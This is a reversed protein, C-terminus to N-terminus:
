KYINKTNRREEQESYLEIESVLKQENADVIKIKKSDEAYYIYEGDTKVNDKEETEKIESSNIKESKIEDQLMSNYSDLGTNELSQKAILSKLQEFDKVTKNEKSLQIIDQNKYISNNVDKEQTSAIWVCSLVFVTAVAVNIIKIYPPKRKTQKIEKLVKNKLYEDAKLNDISKIYKEKNNM